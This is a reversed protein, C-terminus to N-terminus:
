WKRGSRARRGSPRRDAGAIPEADLGPTAEASGVPREDRQQLGVAVRLLAEEEDGADGSLKTGIASRM